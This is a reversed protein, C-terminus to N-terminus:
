IFIIIPISFHQLIWLYENYYKRKKVKVPGRGRGRNHAGHVGGPRVARRRHHLRDLRQGRRHLLGPEGRQDHARHHVDHRPGPGDRQGKADCLQCLAGRPVGPRHRPRRHGGGRQLRERPRPYQHGLRHRRLAGVTQGACPGAGRVGKHRPGAKRGAPQGPRHHVHPIRRLLLRGPHHLRGRQRHRGGAPDGGRGPHRPLDCQQRLHM